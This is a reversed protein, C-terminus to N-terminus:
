FFQHNLQAAKAPWVHIDLAAEGDYLNAYNSRVATQYLTDSHGEEWTISPFTDHIEAHANCVGLFFKTAVYIVM